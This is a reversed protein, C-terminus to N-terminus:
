KKRKVFFITLGISILISCISFVQSPSLGILYAGRDDGRIFEILFRFIGYTFLYVSFTFTSKFKYALLFLIGTLIILFIAEYLQTPYVPNDLHPFKVGLWSNTEIGYCCGAFFCGIRGLGHALTICAPAIIVVDNIFNANAHRKRIILFFGSIFAVVGGVLGGFFTMSFDFTLKGNKISDFIFQFLAASLIGIIISGCALILLDYMYNKNINNKKLYTVFLALCFIIGLFLFISYTDVFWLTPYM